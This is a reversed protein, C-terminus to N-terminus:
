QSIPFLIVGSPVTSRQDQWRQSVLRSRRTDRRRTDGFAVTPIDAFFIARYSGEEAAAALADGSIPDLDRACLM